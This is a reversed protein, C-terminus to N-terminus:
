SKFATEKRLTTNPLVSFGKLKPKFLQEFYFDKYPQSCQM